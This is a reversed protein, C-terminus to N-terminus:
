RPALRDPSDHQALRTALWRGREYLEPPILAMLERHREYLKESSEFPYAVRQGAAPYSPGPVGSGRRGRWARSWM